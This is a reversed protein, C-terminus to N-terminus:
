YYLNDNKKRKSAAYVYEKSYVSGNPMKYATVKGFKEIELKALTVEHVDGQLQLLADINPFNQDLEVPNLTEDYYGKALSANSIHARVGDTAFVRTGDSYLYKLHAGRDDFEARALAVWQVSKTLEQM